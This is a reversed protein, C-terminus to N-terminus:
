AQSEKWTVRATVSLPASPSIGSTDLITAAITLLDPGDPFISDGGLISNGLDVLESLDFTSSVATRKGTSDVAGGSIRFNFVQTGGEITDNLAHYVLQSLSPPTVRTFNQNNIFGNLLLKIEIDHTTLIGVDLLALQMRNVVERLGLAGPRSNDVSPALRISILPILSPIIFDPNGVTVTTDITTLTPAQNIYVYTQNNNRVPQAVTVTGAPIFSASINTGPRINQVTSYVTGAAVIRYAKVTTRTSSDYVDYTRIVADTKGQFTFSDSGYINLVNGAATFLYAKDDDFRGDMIVSTGWHMLAPVFTPFGKNLVEYRCPLNGSRFYAETFNNNHKFEHVYRVEGNGDKFGFRIKGAGYWSYDMYAMQIKHIDLNYGTPGTGDCKDITWEEQPVRTDITKTITVETTTAGRYVPQIYLTTDNSIGVVKYSQGKIVIMDSTSLQSTFNTSVGQIFSSNFTVNVTGSMQRVSSRRVAYLKNGDYEYFMGNQEDYLGCRISSNNWGEVYFLVFGRAITDSPADVLGITFTNDGTVSQVTYVGDWSPTNEPVVSGEVRITVGPSLRHPKKTTVYATNQEDRYMFDIETPASFNIALSVQIGKGSQYRFYKRTQRIMQSDSNKPPILEVGGDFPRHLAFGDAKPYVSTSDFYNLQSRTVNPPTAVLLTTNNRVGTVSSEYISGVTKRTFTGNGTSTLNVVLGGPIERLRLTTTSLSDVYYIGANVLGGIPSAGANYFVPDNTVLGHASGFTIIDNATDVASVTPTTVAIIASPVIAKFVDGPRFQSLFKTNSGIITTSNSTLSVHGSSILEGSINSNYLAHATGTGLSSLVIPVNSKANEETTALRINNNDTRIAYYTSGSTLNGIATGGGSTYSLPTGTVVGHSALFLANSAVDVNLRPIINYAQPPITFPAQLVFTHDDPVQMVTYNGDLAAIERIALYHTGLGTSTLDVGTQNPASALSFRNQTTNTVYYTTDTTLGGINSSPAFPNIYTVATGAVIGHSPLFITDKFPNPFSGTFSITGNGISTIDLSQSAASVKLRFRNADVFEVFYTTSNTLGGPGTGSVINYTVTSNTSLGHNPSYFSNYASILNGHVLFMNGSITPSTVTITSGSFSLTLTTQTSTRSVSGLQYARYNAFSYNNASYVFNPSGTGSQVLYVTNTNTFTVLAETSKHSCTITASNRFLRTVRHALMFAHFGFTSTGQSTLALTSNSSRRNFIFLQSINIFNTISFGVTGSSFSRIRFGDVTGSSLAVAALQWLGISSVTLTGTTVTQVVYWTNNIRLEVYRDTGTSGTGMFVQSFDVSVVNTIPTTFMYAIFTTGTTSSGTTGVMTGWPSNPSSKEWYGYIMNTTWTTTNGSATTSPGIDQRFDISDEVNKLTFTNPTASAIQYVNNTTLGGIPTDGVPPLYMVYDGAALLNPATITNTSTNIDINSCFLTYTGQWDYPVVPRAQYGALETSQTTLIQRTSSVTDNPDVLAADFNARKVGVTKSLIFNTETNFGHPRITDVTIKSFPEAADTTVSALTDLNYQTGQYLQGYYVYTSYSDYINKTVTQLKKAKYIFTFESLVKTVVFAGDATTSDTGSIIIPTGVSVGHATSTTVLVDFSDAATMMSVVSMTVDNNRAFFTPINNVLEVTEWKTTQLGYEYDTDILTQPQSVRFKQVPDILAQSELKNGRIISQIM